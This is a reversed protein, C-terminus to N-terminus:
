ARSTTAEAAFWEYEHINGRHLMRVSFRLNRRRLIACGLEKMLSDRPCRGLDISVLPM